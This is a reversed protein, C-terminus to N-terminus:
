TLPLIVMTDELARFPVSNMSRKIKIFLVKQEFSGKVNIHKELIILM